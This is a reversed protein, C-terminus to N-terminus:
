ASINGMGMYVSSSQYPLCNNFLDWFFHAPPYFLFLQKLLLVPAEIDILPEHLIADSTSLSKNVAYQHCSLQSCPDDTATATALGWQLLCFVICVHSLM